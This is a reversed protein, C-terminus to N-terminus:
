LTLWRKRRIQINPVTASVGPLVSSIERYDCSTPELPLQVPIFNRGSHEFAIWAANSLHRAPFYFFLIDTLPM